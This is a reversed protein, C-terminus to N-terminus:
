YTVVRRGRGTHTPKKVDHVEARAGILALTGAQIPTIDSEATKRNWVWMGTDGLPRKGASLAAATFQPQGIHHLWGTVIGDLVETCGVGLEAVKVPTAQITTGQFFWSGNREDLLAKIPGAVDVVVSRIQPNSAVLYQIHPILWASGRGRTHQDDDLEFHFRGDAREGALAVSAWALDPGAEVGLSLRSVARSGEDAQAVWSPGPLVGVSTVPDWIGRGERNWSDEDGLNKRLRLISNLPTRKPFSPNMRPYQRQDNPDSEPDAGIELWIADDADGALAEARRLSFAESPDTPRPPTGMFFLLAGREHRAQNTAAVMDELAKSDLIQAEDFVEIDIEDFGRGFGMSRAGFMIKSGNRFVVEQEGNSSRIAPKGRGDIAIHPAVKKRRCIGRLTTFTKTSTRLHHATWVVQLGPFLICMIVLTALVFYTKGVQRPISLGIGGVTAVYQGDDGYGLCVTGLQSQWWDFGLDLEKGKAEVRTWVTKKIGEPFKFALAYESLRPTSTATKSRPPM